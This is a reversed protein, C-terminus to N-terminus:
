WRALHFSDVYLQQDINVLLYNNHNAPTRHFGGLSLASVTPNVLFTCCILTGYTWLSSILFGWGWNSRLRCYDVVPEEAIRVGPIFSCHVRFRWCVQFKPSPTITPRHCAEPCLRTSTKGTLSNKSQEVEGWSWANAVEPNPDRLSSWNRTM